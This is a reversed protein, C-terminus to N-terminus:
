KIIHITEVFKAYQSYIKQYAYKELFKKRNDSYNLFLSKNFLKNQLSKFNGCYIGINYKSLIRKVLGKNYTIIPLKYYVAEFFKNPLSNLYDIRNEILYLMADMNSFLSIIKKQPLNGLYFFNKNKKIHYKFEKLFKGDGIFYFKILPNYNYNRFFDFYANLFVKNITGVFIIKKIKNKKQLNKKNEFFPKYSLEFTKLPLKKKSVYKKLHNTFFKNIGILGSANNCIFRLHMRLLIVLPYALIKKFFSLEEFFIDPHLDRYDVIYKIKFKKCFNAVVKSLLISPICTIVIDPKENLNKIKKVFDISLFFESLLKLFYSNRYNIKQDLVIYEFNNLAISKNKKHKQKDYHSYSSIFFKISHGRSLLTEAILHSRFYRFNPSLFSPEELKVIWIKKKITLM